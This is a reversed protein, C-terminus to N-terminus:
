QHIALQLRLSTRRTEYHLRLYKAIRRNQSKILEERYQEWRTAGAKIEPLGSRDVADQSVDVFVTMIAQQLADAAAEANVRISQLWNEILKTSQAGPAM